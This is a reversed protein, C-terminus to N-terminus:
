PEVHLNAQAERLRAIRDEEETPGTRTEPSAPAQEPEVLAEDLEQMMALRQAAPLRSM